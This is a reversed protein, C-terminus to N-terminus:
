SVSELKSKAGGHRAVGDLRWVWLRRGSPRSHLCAQPSATASLGTGSEGSRHGHWQSVAGVARGAWQGPQQGRGQADRNHGEARRSSGSVLGVCGAGRGGGAGTRGDFRGCCARGGSRGFSCRMPLGQFRRGAVQCQGAGGCLGDAVGLEADRGLHQGAVGIALEVLADAHQGLRVPGAIEPHRVLIQAQPHQRPLRAGARHPQLVRGGADDPQLDGGLRHQHVCADALAQDVSAGM